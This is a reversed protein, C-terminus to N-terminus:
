TGEAATEEAPPTRPALLEARTRLEYIWILGFIVGLAYMAATLVGCAVLALQLVSGLPRGFGRRQSAAAVLLLVGVGVLVAIKVATVGSGFKAVAAPVLAVTFAELILTGAFVGRMAREAGARRREDLEAFSPGDARDTM